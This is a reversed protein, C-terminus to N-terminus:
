EDSTTATWVDDWGPDDKGWTTNPNDIEREAIERRRRRDRRRQRKLKNFFLVEAIVDSPYSARWEGMLQKNREAIALRRQVQRHRHRDDNDLLRPPPALLEAKELSEVESFNLDRRSRRFRWAVAHYARAALKPADYTGLTLRYSGAHFEAYYTGNPRARVSRFGSSELRCPPSL